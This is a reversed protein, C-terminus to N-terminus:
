AFWHGEWAFFLSCFYEGLFVGLLSAILVM